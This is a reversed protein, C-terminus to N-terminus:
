ASCCRSSRTAPSRISGNRSRGSTRGEDRRYVHRRRPARGAALHRDEELGAVVAADCSRQEGLRRQGDRLRLGERRGEHATKGRGIAVDRVWLNWDRIFAARKGDPSMSQNGAAGGRGGGGRGGRGGGRGGRGADSEATAPVGPCNSRAADCVVRTRKAPDVLVVDSGSRYWLRDDALWNAQVSGGVALNGLAPALMKVARDYDAATYVRTPQQANAPALAVVTAVSLLLRKM